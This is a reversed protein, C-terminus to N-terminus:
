GGFVGIVVAGGVAAAAGILKRPTMPEKLLWWGLLLTFVTAMQSLVGAVSASAYKMGGVWLVMAVCSGLFSAPIMKRWVRQPAFIALDVKPVRRFAVVILLSVNGFFLRVQTVEVLDSRELVPKAVVIGFAMCAVAGVGYLVGERFNSNGGVTERLKPDVTVLLLGLLVLATGLVFVLSLVEGLLVVACLVVFPTYACEVVALIGPGLRHLAAFFLSDALGLGMVGSVVLIAWDEQSRDWAIGQGMVWMTLALCVMAITNKFLNLGIPSGDSAQKFLIVSFSWIFAAAVSMLEGM